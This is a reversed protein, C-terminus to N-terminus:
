TAKAKAPPSKWLIEDARVDAVARIGVSATGHLPKIDYRGIIKLRRGLERESNGHKGIDRRIGFTGFQRGLQVDPERDPRQQSPTNLTRRLLTAWRFANEPVSGPWEGSHPRAHTLYIQGLRGPARLTEQRWRTAVENRRQTRTPVSRLKGSGGFNRPNRSWDPRTARDLGTETRAPCKLQDRGGGTGPDGRGAGIRTSVVQGSRERGAACPARGTAYRIHYSSLVRWRWHSRTSHDRQLYIWVADM